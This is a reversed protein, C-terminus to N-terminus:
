ATVAGRHVGDLAHDLAAAEAQSLFTGLDHILVLGDELRAVGAVYEAGSTIHEADEVEIEGMWLVRQTRLAVTRAAARALILLEDPEVARSALGFRRPMDLVPMLEGRVDIVGEVVAPAGPLRTIAVARVVERVDELAIGYRASEREFVMVNM